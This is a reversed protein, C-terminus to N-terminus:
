GAGLGHAAKDMPRWASPPVAGELAQAVLRALTHDPDSGLARDVACWALAGDGSLWAAFALLGAAPAVLEEPSRRVLDRWVRVHADAEERTIACWAVDRVEQRAVARLVRAVDEPALRGPADLRRTVTETLWAAEAALLRRPAREDLPELRGHADLVEEVEDPDTAALSDALESRNRFTVRGDLVARTSLEHDRIDYPVGVLSRPDLHDLGLPYWRRGDARLCVLCGVGGAGLADVLLETADEALCEDDTYVVVM